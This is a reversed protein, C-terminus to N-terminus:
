SLSEDLARQATGIVGGIREGIQESAAKELRQGLVAETIGREKKFTAGQGERMSKVDAQLQDVASKVGELARDREERVRDSADDDVRRVDQSRDPERNGDSLADVRERLSTLAARSRTLESSIHALASAVTAMSRKVRRSCWASRHARERRSFARGAVSRMGEFERGENTRVDRAEHTRVFRRMHDDFLEIPNRDSPEERRDYLPRYM